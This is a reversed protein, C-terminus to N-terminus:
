SVSAGEALVQKATGSFVHKGDVTLTFPMGEVSQDGTGSIPTGAVTEGACTQTKGDAGLTCEPYVKVPVKQAVLVDGIAYYIDPQMGGHPLVGSTYACGSFGVMAIVLGTAGAAIHKM